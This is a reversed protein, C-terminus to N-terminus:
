FASITAQINNTHLHYKEKSFHVPHPNRQGLNKTCMYILHYDVINMVVIESKLFILTFVESYKCWLWVRLHMFDSSLFISAIGEALNFLFHFDFYLKMQLYPKCAHM